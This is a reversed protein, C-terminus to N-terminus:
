GVVAKLVGGQRCEGTVRVTLVAATANLYLIGGDVLQRGYFNAGMDPVAPRKGALIQDRFLTWKTAAVPNSLAWRSYYAAAQADNVFRKFDDLPAM